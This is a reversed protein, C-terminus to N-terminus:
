ATLLNIQIPLTHSAFSLYSDTAGPSLRKNTPIRKGKEKGKRKVKRQEKNKLKM